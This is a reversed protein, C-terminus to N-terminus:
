RMTSPSIKLDHSFKTIRAAFIRTEELAPHFEGLTSKSGVGLFSSFAADSAFRDRLMRNRPIWRNHKSLDWVTNSLILVSYTGPEIASITAKGNDNTHAVYVGLGKMEDKVHRSVGSSSLRAPLAASHILVADEVSIKRPSDKSILLVTAGVDPTAPGNEIHNVLHANIGGLAHPLMNSPVLTVMVVALITRIIM